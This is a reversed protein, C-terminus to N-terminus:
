IFILGDFASATSFGVVPRSSDHARTEEETRVNEALDPKHILRVEMVVFFDIENLTRKACAPLHTECAARKDAVLLTASNWGTCLRMVVEDSVAKEKASFEVIFRRKVDHPRTHTESM